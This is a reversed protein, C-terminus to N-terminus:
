NETVVTIVYQKNVNEGSNRDLRTCKTVLITVSTLNVLHTFIFKSIQQFPKGKQSQLYLLTYTLM